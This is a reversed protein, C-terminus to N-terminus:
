ATAAVAQHEDVVPEADATDSEPDADSEPDNDANLPTGDPYSFGRSRFEAAQHRELIAPDIGPETSDINQRWIALEIVRRSFEDLNPQKTNNLRFHEADVAARFDCWRVFLSQHQAASRSHSSVNLVVALVVSAGSLLIGAVYALTELQWGAFVSSPVCSLIMGVAAVIALWVQLRLEKNEFHAWREQHVRINMGANMSLDFLRNSIEPKKM